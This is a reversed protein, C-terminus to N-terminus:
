VARAELLRTIYVALSAVTAFPNDKLSMAGDDALNITVDFEEEIKQEVAVILNVLGLSDLGGSAGMLVTRETKTLQAARPLVQNAAEIGDLIVNLGREHVPRTM